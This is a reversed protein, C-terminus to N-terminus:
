ELTIIDEQSQLYALAYDLEGKTEAHITFLPQGKQIQRDLHAYFDIGSTKDEPAGALKAIQALRRNDIKKVTGTHTARIDHQFKAKSPLNFMGQADCIAKFKEYAKGSDLVERAKDNGAGPEAVGALELVEGALLLSREKLDKPADAENQLVALLDRAELSPGIGRGVPQNGDTKIVKLQIGIASAVKEMDGKLTEAAETTRVKATEGIPMDVVLLNSGAAVKKSIISAILPGESDLDLAKEVKILIDDAPSLRANNGWAFCGSELDIVKKIQDITLNVHTIVEMTDSTGAPSTIARSSTKPMMLGMAAAIAVIIPTTRNGPLGGVCHKDVVLDKDWYIREGSEIMAKTMSTIEESTLGKGTSATIFAALHVNSYHGEAIDRIIEQMERSSVKNGYIKSRVYSFSTIPSQHSISLIDGEKAGLAEIANESLGIEDPALIDSNVMNLSAIVNKDGLSVRIRTLAEFGESLCVDCDERMYVNHENRTYIGPRKLKLQNTAEQDNM